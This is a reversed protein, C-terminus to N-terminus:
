FQHLLDALHQSVMMTGIAGFLGVTVPDYPKDPNMDAFGWEGTEEIERFM